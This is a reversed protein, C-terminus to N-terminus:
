PYANAQPAQRLARGGVIKYNGFAGEGAAIRLYAELEIGGSGATGFLEFANWFPKTIPNTRGYTGLVAAPISEVFLGALLFVTIAKVRVSPKVKMNQKFNPGSTKLECCTRQITIQRANSM